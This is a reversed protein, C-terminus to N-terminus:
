NCDLHPPTLSVPVFYSNSQMSNLAYYVFEIHVFTIYPILDAHPFPLPPLLYLPPLFRSMCPKHHMIGMSLGGMRAWAGLAGYPLPELDLSPLPHRWSRRGRM